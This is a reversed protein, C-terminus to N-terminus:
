PALSIFSQITSLIEKAEEEKVYYGFRYTKNDQNIEFADKYQKDFPSRFLSHSTNRIVLHDFYKKSLERKRKWGFLQKTITLQSRNIVIIEEGAIERLFVYIAYTGQGLLFLLGITLFCSILIFINIGQPQSVATERAGMVMITWITSLMTFMYAWFLFWLTMVFLSGINRQSKISIVLGDGTKEVTHRPSRSLKPLKM